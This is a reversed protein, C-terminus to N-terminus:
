HPADTKILKLMARVSENLSRTEARSGAIDAALKTLAHGQQTIKGDLEKRVDELRTYVDGIDTKHEDSPVSPVAARSELMAVRQTISDLAAPSSSDKKGKWDRYAGIVNRAFMALFALGGIAWWALLPRPDEGPGFGASAMVAPGRAMAAAAAATTLISLPSTDAATM